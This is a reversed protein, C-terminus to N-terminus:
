VVLNGHTSSATLSLQEFSNFLDYSNNAKLMNRRASFDLITVASQIFSYLRIPVRHASRSLISDLGFLALSVSAVVYQIDRVYVCVCM